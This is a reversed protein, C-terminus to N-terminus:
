SVTAYRNAAEAVRNNYDVDPNYSAIASIWSAPRSLDGGAECLYAAATLAADDIQSIDAAGDGNGDKAYAAWTSPIFQMPGVAHDWLADGDILGGDTDPVKAVGDGDLPVGIITPVTRGDAPIDAGTLGGHESEVLGIAALTNWGLGCSPVSRSLEISAGAYAALARAPIGSSTAVRTVWAADALESVVVPAAGSETSATPAPAAVAPVADPSSTA